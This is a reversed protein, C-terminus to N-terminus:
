VVGAPTRVIRVIARQNATDVQVIEVCDDTSATVDISTPGALDCTKGLMAQTITGTGVTYRYLTTPSVDVGCTVDGDAAGGTVTDFAVGIPDNGGAAAPSLYGSSDLVVLDGAVISASATVPFPLIQRDGSVYGLDLNPTPM